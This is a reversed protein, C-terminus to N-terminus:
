TASEVREKLAENMKIMSLKVKQELADRRFELFGLLKVTSFGTYFIENFFMVKGDDRERLRFVHEASLWWHGVGSDWVWSFYKPANLGTVVVNETIRTGTKTVYNKLYFMDMQIRAELAPEGHVATVLPNWEPYSKFDGLVRWIKEVPAQIQIETDVKM